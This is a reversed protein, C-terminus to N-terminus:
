KEVSWYKGLEDEKVVKLPEGRLMRGIWNDTNMSMLVASGPFVMKLNGQFERWMYGDRWYNKFKPCVCESPKSHPCLGIYSYVFPKGKGHTEGAMRFFAEDNIAFISQRNFHEAECM